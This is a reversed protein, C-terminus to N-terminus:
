FAVVAVGVIGVFASVLMAPVNLLQILHISKPGRYWFFSAIVLAVPLTYLLMLVDAVEPQPKMSYISISVATVYLVAALLGHASTVIRRQLSMGSRDFIFYAASTALMVASPLGVWLFVERVTGFTM